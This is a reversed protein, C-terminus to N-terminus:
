RHLSVPLTSTKRKWGTSHSGQPKRCTLGCKHENSLQCPLITGGAIDDLNMNSIDEEENALPNAHTEGGAVGEGGDGRGDAAPLKGTKLAKKAVKADQKEAKAAKKGEKKEVNAAKKALKQGKKTAAFQEAELELASEPWGGVFFCELAKVLEKELNM